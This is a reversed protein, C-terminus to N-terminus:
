IVILLPIHLYIKTFERTDFKIFIWEATEHTCVCMSVPSLFLKFLQVFPIYFHRFAAATLSYIYTRYGVATVSSSRLSFVCQALCYLTVWFV